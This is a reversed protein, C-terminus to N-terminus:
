LLAPIPVGLSPIPTVLAEQAVGAWPIDVRRWGVSGRGRLREGWEGM